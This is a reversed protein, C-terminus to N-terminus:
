AAVAAAKEGASAAASATENIQDEFILYFGVIILTLAIVFIGIKKGWTGLFSLDIGSAATTDATTTTTTPTGTSNAGSYWAFSVGNGEAITTQRIAFGDVYQLIPGTSWNMNSVNVTGNDNVQTVVGVHGYTPDAGQVGPQLIMISPRDTPPTSSVTWGPTSSAGTLWDAANGWNGAFQGTLQYYLQSAWWTCQGLPYLNM